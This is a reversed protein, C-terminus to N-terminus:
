GPAARALHMRKPPAVALWVAHRLANGPHGTEQTEAQRSVANETSRKCSSSEHRVGDPKRAAAVLAIGLNELFLWEQPEVLAVVRALAQTGARVAILGLILSIWKM